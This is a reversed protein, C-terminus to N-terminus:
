EAPGLGGQGPRGLPQPSLRCGQARCQSPTPHPPQESAPQAATASTSTIPTNQSDPMRLATLSCTGSTVLTLSASSLAPNVAEGECLDTWGAVTLDSDPPAQNKLIVM